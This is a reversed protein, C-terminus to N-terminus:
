RELDQLKQCINRLFAHRYYVSTTSSGNWMEDLDAFDQGILDVLVNYSSICICFGSGFMISALFAYSGLSGQIILSIIMGSVTTQDFPFEFPIIPILINDVIYFKVPVAIYCFLLVFVGVGYIKLLRCTKRLGCILIDARTGTANELCLKRPTFFLSYM